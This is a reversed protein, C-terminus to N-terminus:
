ANNKHLDGLIFLALRTSELKVEKPLEMGAKEYQKKVNQHLPAILTSVVDDKKATKAAKFVNYTQEQNTLSVNDVVISLVMYLEDSRLSKWPVGNPNSMVSEYSPISLSKLWAIYEKGADKGVTSEVIFSGMEINKARGLMRAADDWTRMSPWAKGAEEPDSPMNNILHRNETLFGVIYGRMSKEAESMPENWGLKMGKFWDPISPEYKIHAYRNATPASLQWGDPAVEPPNGAAIILVNDPLFFKGIRRDQVFTLLAAQVPPSATTIEDIYIAAGQKHTRAYQEVEYFWYPKTFETIITGDDQKSLVPLGAVDSPDMTSGILTRLLMGRKKVIANILKTKGVGPAGWLLPVTKSEFAIEIFDLYKQTEKSEGIFIHEHDVEEQLDLPETTEEITAM